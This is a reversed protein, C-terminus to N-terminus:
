RHTPGRGGLNALRGHSSPANAAARRRSSLRRIVSIWRSLRVKKFRDSAFHWGTVVVLGAWGLVLGMSGAFGPGASVLIATSILLGCGMLGLFVRTGLVGLRANLSSLGPNEVRVTLRGGELDMLLQDLHHPIEHLLGSLGLVIRLGHNVMTKLNYRDALLERAYPAFVEFVDMDPHLSRIIGEISAGAKALMAYEAPVRIHHRVALDLLDTLLSGSDIKSLELGLYRDLLTQIDRHFAFLSVRDDTIGLRYLLRALGPVDRLYIGLSLLVLTDQMQPSVECVLGFDLIGIRGDPLVLFNGPHPDAHFFGHKIVMTYAIDVIKRALEEREKETASLAGVKVGDIYDMTIVTRCCYEEYPRPVLVDPHGLFNGHMRRMNDAEHTFDLEQTIAREFERVISVPDYLRAEEITADILGALVYLIDIDSRITAEIGPRCVKVVVRTGDHLTARHTQAISASALPTCDFFSFAEEITRGLDQEIVSKIDSFPVPEVRDQLKSLEKIFDAPLLDPRTSLVQGLKVFTAGLEELVMRVRVHVPADFSPTHAAAAGSARSAHASGSASSTNVDYSAEDSHLDTGVGTPDAPAGSHSLSAATAASSAGTSVGSNRRKIRDALNRFGHRGLVAAIRSLRRIDGIATRLLTV